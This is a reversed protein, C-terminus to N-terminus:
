RARDGCDPCYGWVPEVARRCKRCECTRNTRRRLFLWVGFLAVVMGIWLLLHPGIRWFDSTSCRGCCVAWYNYFLITLSVPLTLTLFFRFM